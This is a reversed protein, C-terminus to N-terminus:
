CCRRQYSSALIRGLHAGIEILQAGLIMKLQIKPNKRRGNAPHPIKQDCGHNGNNNQRQELGTANSKGGGVTAREAVLRKKVADEKLAPREKVRAVDM